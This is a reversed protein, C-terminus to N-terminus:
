KGQDTVLDDLETLYSAHFGEYGRKTEEPLDRWGIIVRRCKVSGCLCEPMHDVVYNGMAYDGVIEEGCEIDQFAFYDMGGEANDRYGVNPSCSHNVKPALGGRLIYKNIGVQTTWSTNKEAVKLVTGRLVLDGRKFNRTAFVGEGKGPTARLEYGVHSNDDECMMELVQSEEQPITSYM